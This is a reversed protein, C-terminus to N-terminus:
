IKLTIFEKKSTRVRSWFLDTFEKFDFPVEHIGCQELTANFKTVYNALLDQLWDDLHVPSLSTFLLLAVDNVPHDATLFQWDIIYGDDQDNVMINNLWLDGHILFRHDESCLSEEYFLKWQKRLNSIKSATKPEEEQLDSILTEISKEIVQVFDKDHLFKEYWSSLNWEKVKQPYQKAFAYGLAHFTATKALISNAAKFTLEQTMKYGKQSLDDMIVYFGRKDKEMNYDGAFFEPSMFKLESTSRKSEEMAILAPLHEKYFQIEVQDFNYIDFMATFVDDPESIIKVFLHKPEENQKFQVTARSVGSLFGNKDTITEMSLVKAEDDLNLVERLWPETVETQRTPIAM